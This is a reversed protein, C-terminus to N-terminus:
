TARAAGPRGLFQSCTFARAQPSVRAHTDPPRATHGLFLQQTGAPPLAQRGRRRFASSPHGQALGPGSSVAAERRRLVASLNGAPEKLLGAELM